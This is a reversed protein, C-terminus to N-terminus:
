ENYPNIGCNSFAKESYICSDPINYVETLNDCGSFAYDNIIILEDNFTVSTINKYDKFAYTSIYKVGDPIVVNDSPGNYKVLVGDGLILFAEDSQLFSNFFPTHDFAYADIRTVSDPVTINILDDCHYFAGYEITTVTDPIVIEQLGSRAFSLKGISKILTEGFSFTKLDSQYFLYDDIKDSVSDNNQKDTIGSNVKLDDLIVFARDSVITTGGVNRIYDEAIQINSEINLNEENDIPEYINEKSSYTSTDMIPSESVNIGNTVAYNYAYSNHNCIFTLDKNNTSFSNQYINVISEPMIVQKLNPCNQFAGINISNVPINITVSELNKLNFFAYDNIKGLNTSTIVNKLNDAGFFAYRSLETVENPMIYSERTNGALYAILKSKDKSYLVGDDFIFFVNNDSIDINKLSSCGAFLGSGALCLREGFNVSTLKICGSFASEGISELNNNLTVKELNICDSFSSNGIKKISEPLIIESVLPNGKFAENGIETIGDPVLVSSDTGSYKVLVTGNTQFDQGFDANSNIVKTAVFAILLVFVPVLAISFLKKLKM